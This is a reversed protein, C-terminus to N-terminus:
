KSKKGNVMFISSFLITLCGSGTILAFATLLIGFCFFIIDRLLYSFSIGASGVLVETYFFPKKIEADRKLGATGLPMMLERTQGSVDVKVNCYQVSTNISQIPTVETVKGSWSSLNESLGIKYYVGLTMLVYVFLIVGLFISAGKYKEFNGRITDIPYTSLVRLFSKFEQMKKELLKETKKDM